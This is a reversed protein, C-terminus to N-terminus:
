ALAVVAEGMETLVEEVAQQRAGADDGRVTIYQVDLLRGYRLSVCLTSDFNEPGVAEVCDWKLGGASVSRQDVSSGAEEYSVVASDIETRYAESDTDVVPTSEGDVFTFNAMFQAMKKKDSAEYVFRVSHEGPDTEKSVLGMTGIQTPMRGFDNTRVGDQLDLDVDVTPDDQSLPSTPDQESPDPSPEPSVEDVEATESTMPSAIVTPETPEEQAASCATLLVAPALLPLILRRM